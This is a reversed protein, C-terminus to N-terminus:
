SPHFGLFTQVAEDMTAQRTRRTRVYVWWNVASDVLVLLRMMGDTRVSGVEYALLLVPVDRRGGVHGRLLTSLLGRARTANQAEEQPSASPSLSSTWDRPAGTPCVAQMAETLTGPAPDGRAPAGSCAPGGAEGDEATMAAAEEGETREVEQSLLFIDAEPVTGIVRASDVGREDFAVLLAKGWGKGERHVVLRAVVVGSEETAGVLRHRLVRFRGIPTASTSPAAPFLETSADLLAPVLSLGKELIARTRPSTAAAAAAESYSDEVSEPDPFLPSSPAGPALARVFAADDAEALTHTQFGGEEPALLRADLPDGTRTADFTVCLWLTAVCVCAEVHKPPGPTASSDPPRRVTAPSITVQRDTIRGKQELCRRVSLTLARLTKASVSRLPIWTSRDEGTPLPRSRLCTLVKKTFSPTESNPPYVAVSAASRVPTGSLFATRRTDCSDRPLTEGGSLSPYCRTWRHVFAIPPEYM